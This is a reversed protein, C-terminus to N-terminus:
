RMVDRAAAALGAPDNALLNVVECEGVFPSYTVATQGQGAGLRRTDPLLFGRAQDLLLLNTAPSGLLVLDTPITKWRPFPQVGQLPQLSVVVDDPSIRGVRVTRSKARYYAALRLALARMPPDTAQEPTLAVTLPVTRRAAFRALSAAPNDGGASPKAPTGPVHVVAHGTLGSLLETVTVTYAGATDSAALPLAATLGTASYVTATESGRTVTWQLPIGRMPTTGVAATARFFGDPGPTVMVRPATVPAPPLAYYQFANQTLDVTAAEPATLRRGLRVDYIPRATHWLLPGTQPAIVKSANAGPPTAQNVVTLYQTDGAVTPLAWLTDSGTEALPPPVGHMAAQLRHINDQNRALLDPTWDRDREVVYAMVTMGTKTAPVPSVSEDDTLIRGGDAVFKKLAPTLGDYWHWTDDLPDLGVLLVARVSPPLGRRLEEPTIIKAPWGAAHCLFWAEFTKGEHSGRALQDAPPNEGTLVPRALAQDNVYLIGISPTPETMAYAGGYKHIWGFLDRQAALFNSGANYTKVNDPNAVFTTGVGQVGRTLALAYARQMPQPGFLLGFDDLLADGPKAPYYSKLRDMMAPNQGPKSSANENWDYTQLIPLGAFMERGPMTGWAYGGRAGVGPASGFSGSTLTLAPDIQRVAATFYDGYNVFARDYRGLYGVFDRMTAPREHPKAGNKPYGPPLPTQLPQGAAQQMVQLAMGWPHESTPGNWDWYWIYDANDAGMTMGLFNPFRAFRQALLQADRYKPRHWDPLNAGYFAQNPDGLSIDNLGAKLGHAAMAAMWHEYSDADQPRGLVANRSDEYTADYGMDALFRAYDDVGGPFGPGQESWFKFGGSMGAHLSTAYVFEPSRPVDVGVHQTFSTVRREVTLPSPVPSDVPAPARTPLTGAKDAGIQALSLAVPYVHVDSILGPFGAYHGGAFDGGQEWGLTLPETNAPLPGPADKRAIPNANLYLTEQGGAQYTFAVHQWVGPKIVPRSWLQGLPNDLGLSGDGGIDLVFPAGGIWWGPRKTVIAARDGKPLADPKIWASFTLADMPKNLVDSAIQARAKVGDLKLAAGGNHGGPVIGAGDLLTGALGLPGSETFKAPDQPAARPDLRVLIPVQRPDAGRQAAAFARAQQMASQDDAWEQSNPFTEPRSLSAVTLGTGPIAEHVTVPVNQPDGPQVPMLGVNFSVPRSGNVALQYPHGPTNQPLLLTLSHLPEFSPLLPERRQYITEGDVTLVVNRVSAPGPGGIKVPFTWLEYQSGGSRASPDTTYVDRRGWLTLKLARLWHDGPGLFPDDPAQFVNMAVPLHKEPLVVHGVADGEFLALSTGGPQHLSIQPWDVADPGERRQADQRTNGRYDRLGLPSDWRVLHLTVGYTPAVVDWDQAARTPLTGAMDQQIQAPTLAAAYVHVEDMLGKYKTRAGGPGNWGNENGFVLPEDNSYLDSGAAGSGADQGNVYLVRGGSPVVTVAVYAWAGLKLHVNSWGSGAVDSTDFGVAGDDGLRLSFPHGIWGQGTKTLLIAPSGPSGFAAPKLWLSVTLPGGMQNLFKPDNISAPREPGTGSFSLASGQGTHGGPVWATDGNLRGDIHLPGSDALRTKDAPDPQMAWRAVLPAQASVRGAGPLLALAALLFFTFQRM